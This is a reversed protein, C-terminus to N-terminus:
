LNILRSNLPGFCHENPYCAPKQERKPENQLKGEVLGAEYMDKQEQADRQQNNLKHGVALGAILSIRGAPLKIKERGKPLLSEPRQMLLLLLKVNGHWSEPAPM